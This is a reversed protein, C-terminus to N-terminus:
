SEVEPVPLAPLFKDLAIRVLDSRTVTASATSYTKAAHDLRALMEPPIRLQLKGDLGNRKNQNGNM